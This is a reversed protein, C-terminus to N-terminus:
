GDHQEARDGQAFAAHRLARRGDGCGGIQVKRQGLNGLSERLSRPARTSSTNPQM